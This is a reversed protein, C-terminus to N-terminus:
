EQDNKVSSNDSQDPIYVPRKIFNLILYIISPLIMTIGAFALSLSWQLTVTRMGTAIQQIAFLEFLVALFFTSVSKVLYIQKFLSWFLIISLLIGLSRTFVGVATLPFKSMVLPDLFAFPNKLVISVPGSIYDIVYSLLFLSVTFILIYEKKM